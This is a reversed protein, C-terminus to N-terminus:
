ILGRIDDWLASRRPQHAGCSIGRLWDEVIREAAHGDWARPRRRLRAPRELTERVVGALARPDNGALRNGGHTLTLRHETRDRATICPVGLLAAEVQLGGSDTVVAAANGVTALFKLYPAPATRLVGSTKSASRPLKKATRPHVPFVVPIRRGVTELARVYAALRRPDDVNAQRHLTAVVYGGLGFRREAPVRTGALAPRVAHLADAMVNGPKRIRSLAIRERRCNSEAQPESLHLRDSIADVLVRNREEPMSRDRSRLGAEVHALPIALQRAALAGAVTTDVDGVVVVLSPKLEALQARLGETLQAIRKPGPAPARLTTVPPPLALDSTM